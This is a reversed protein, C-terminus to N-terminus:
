SGGELEAGAVVTDGDLGSGRAGPGAGGDGHAVAGDAAVAAVVGDGAVADGAVREDLGAIAVVHHAEAKEFGGGAGEREQPGM